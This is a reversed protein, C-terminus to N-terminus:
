NRLESAANGFAVRNRPIKDKLLCGYEMGSGVQVEELNVTQIPSVSLLWPTQSDPFQM